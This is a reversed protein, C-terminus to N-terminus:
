YFGNGETEMKPGGMLSLSVIDLGGVLEGGVYVQPFTPWDSFEKLGQRVDDDALINFFGYRVGHQRLLAVTQRSFGCQPASPTGKMFLMVPAAKVLQSLRANLAEKQAEPDQDPQASGVPAAADPGTSSPPPRTVQQLPPLTTGAGGGAAGSTSSSGAHKEVAARVKAADGGSITDLVEGARSLVIHPVQTVDYRESVESVEEADLSLFAIQPPSSSPYTSALTHIVTSMQKCPEAWPAHFYIVQLCSPPLSNTLKDFAALDPVDTVTTGQSAAM